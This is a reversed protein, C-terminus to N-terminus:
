HREEAGKHLTDTVQIHSGIVVAAIPIGIGIGLLIAMALAVVPVRRAQIPVDPSGPIELPLEAARRNNSLQGTRWMAWIIVIVMGIGPAM